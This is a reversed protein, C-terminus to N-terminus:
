QIVGNKHVRSEKWGIGRRSMIVVSGIISGLRTLMGWGSMFLKLNRRCIRGVAYSQEQIQHELKQIDINELFEDSDLIM